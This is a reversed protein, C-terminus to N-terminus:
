QQDLFCADLGVLALRTIELEKELLSLTQRADTAKAFRIREQLDKMRITLYERM